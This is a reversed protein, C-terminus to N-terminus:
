DRLQSFEDYAFCGIDEGEIDADNIIDELQREHSLESLPNAYYDSGCAQLALRLAERVRHRADATQYQTPSLEGEDDVNYITASAEVLDAAFKFEGFSLQAKYIVQAM